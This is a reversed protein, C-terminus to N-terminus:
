GQRWLIINIHKVVTKQLIRKPNFPLAALVLLM